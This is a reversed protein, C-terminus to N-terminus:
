LTNSYKHCCRYLHKRIALRKNDINYCSNSGCWGLLKCEPGSGPPIGGFVTAVKGSPIGMALAGGGGNGDCGEPRLPWADPARESRSPRSLSNVLIWTLLFIGNTFNLYAYKYKLKMNEQM